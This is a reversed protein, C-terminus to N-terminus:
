IKKYISIRTSSFTSISSRSTTPCRFSKTAQSVVARYGSETFLTVMLQGADRIFIELVVPNEKEGAAAKERAYRQAIPFSPTMYFGTGLRGGGVPKIGQSRISKQYNKLTTGHYVVVDKGNPEVNGVPLLSLLSVVNKEVLKKKLM